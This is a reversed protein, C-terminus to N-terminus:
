EIHKGKESSGAASQRRPLRVCPAVTEGQCGLLVDRLVAAGSHSVDRTAFLLTIPGRRALERLAETRETSLRLEALYRRRFGRWRAPEHGYWRRLETSPAIEKLWLDLAAKTRTLGRPWLREVLVRAGDDPGPPEYIRRLRVHEAPLRGCAAEAL